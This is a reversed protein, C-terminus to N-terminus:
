SNLQIKYLLKFGGGDFRCCEYQERTECSNINPLVAGICPNLGPPLCTCAACLWPLAKGCDSCKKFVPLSTIGNTGGWTWTGVDINLQVWVTGQIGNIDYTKEWRIAPDIPDDLCTIVVDSPFFLVDNVQVLECVSCNPHNISGCWVCYTFLTLTVTTTDVCVECIDGTCVIKCPIECLEPIHVALLDSTVVETLDDIDISVEKIAEEFMITSTMIADTNWVEVLEDSSLHGKMAHAVYSINNFTLGVVASDFVITDVNGARSTSNIKRIITTGNTMKLAIYPRFLWDFEPGNATVGLGTGGGVVNVITYETLPAVLWFAYLGGARSDFLQLLSWAEARNRCIVPLRYTSAPRDGYLQPVVDIGLENLEGYRLVGWDISEGEYQVPVNFIPLGEHSEFGSPITGMAATIPLQTDGIDEFADVRVTCTEDTLVKGLIDLKVVAEILPVIYAGATLAASTAVTLTISNVTASQIIRVQFSPAQTKDTDDFLVVRMGAAIRRTTTDCSLVTTGSAANATLPTYDSYLPFMSKAHAMRMAMMRLSQVQQRGTANFTTSISRTPAGRLGRRQSANSLSRDIMTTYSSRIVVDEQWDATFLYALLWLSEPTAPTGEISTSISTSM